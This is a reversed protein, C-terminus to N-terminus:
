QLQCFVSSQRVSVIFVHERWLQLYLHLLKGGEGGLHNVWPEKGGRQEAMYLKARRRTLSSWRPEPYDYGFVIVVM